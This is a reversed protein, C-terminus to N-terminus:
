SSEGQYGDTYNGKLEYSPDTDLKDKIERAILSIHRVNSNQICSLKSLNLELGGLPASTTQTLKQAYEEVDM